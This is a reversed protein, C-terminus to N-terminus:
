PFPLFPQPQSRVESLALAGNKSGVDRLQSSPSMTHHNLGTAPLNPHHPCPPSPLSILPFSGFDVTIHNIATEFEAQGGFYHKIYASIVGIIFYFITSNLLYELSTSDL